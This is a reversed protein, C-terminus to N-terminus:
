RKVILKKSAVTQGNIVYTCFYVGEALDETRVIAKGHSDTLEIEKMVSGLLNRVVLKASLVEAGNFSYTFAAKTSAPNPSPNSFQFKGSLIEDIGTYGANYFITISVSDNVNADDWFVYRIKSMGVHGLPQYDGSFSGTNTMHTEIVVPDPDIYTTSPWCLSWCFTNSSGTVTDGAGIVKKLRVSIPSNGSNTVSVHATITTVATYSGNILFSSGNPLAGGAFSISLNQSKAVFFAFLSIAILTFIKKM